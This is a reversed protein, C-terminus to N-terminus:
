LISKATKLILNTIEDPETLLAFHHSMHQLVCWQHARAVTAYLQYSNSLQIYGCPALHWNPPIDIVERFFRMDRPQVQKLLKKRIKASPIIDSLQEDTWDPFKGGNNLHAELEQAYETNELRLLDLRTTSEFTLVADVFIYGIAGLQEGIIPLLAGAASHGVLIPNDVELDISDVEQKWFPYKSKKKDRLDPIHVTHGAKVLLKAVAKWTYSGVLPSHILVFSSPKM